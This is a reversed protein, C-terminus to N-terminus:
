LWSEVKKVSSDYPVRLRAKQFADMQRQEIRNYVPNTEPLLECLATLIFAQEAYTPCVPTYAEEVAEETNEVESFDVKEPTIHAKFTLFTGAKQVRGLHIIGRGQDVHAVPLVGYKDDFYTKGNQSDQFTTFPVAAYRVCPAANGGVPYEKYGVIYQSRLTSANRYMSTNLLFDHEGNPENDILDQISDEHETEHYESSHLYIASTDEPLYVVVQMEIKLDGCLQIDAENIARLMRRPSTMKTWQTYSLAEDERYDDLRSKIADMVRPTSLYSLYM